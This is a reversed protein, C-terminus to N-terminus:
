CIVDPKSIGRCMQAAELPQFVNKPNLFSIHFHEQLQDLSCPVYFGNQQVICVEMKMM